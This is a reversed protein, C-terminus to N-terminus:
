DSLLALVEEDEVQAFDRYYQGVARFDAPSHLCVVADALARVRALTEPPAVPVACVLRAPQRERLSHLAAIMTAGTALGDDVVIV